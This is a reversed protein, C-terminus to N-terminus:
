LRNYLIVCAVDSETERYFKVSAISFFLERNTVFATDHFRKIKIEKCARM